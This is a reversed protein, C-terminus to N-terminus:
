EKLPYFLLGSILSFDNCGLISLGCQKEDKQVDPNHENM